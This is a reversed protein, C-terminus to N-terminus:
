AGKLLSLFIVQRMKSIYLNNANSEDKPSNRGMKETMIGADSWRFRVFCRWFIFLSFCSIKEDNSFNGGFLLLM